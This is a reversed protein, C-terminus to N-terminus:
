EEKWKFFTTGSDNAVWEAKGKKVAEIQTM